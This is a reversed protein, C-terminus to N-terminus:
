PPAIVIEVGQVDKVLSCFEKIYKVTDAVTQFMKWNGAIFPTRM